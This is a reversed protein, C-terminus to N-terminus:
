LGPRGRHPRGSPQGGHTYLAPSVTVVGALVATLVAYRRDVTISAFVVCIPAVVAFPSAWGGSAAMAGAVLLLNVAHLALYPIRSSRRWPLYYILGMSAMVIVLSLLLGARSLPSWDGMLDAVFAVAVGIGYLQLVLRQLLADFNGPPAVRSPTSHTSM